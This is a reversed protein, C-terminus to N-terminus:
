DPITAVLLLDIIPGFFQCYQVHVGVHWLMMNEEQKHRRRQRCSSLKSCCCSDSEIDSDSDSRPCTRGGDDCDAVAAAAAM